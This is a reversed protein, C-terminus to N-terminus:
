GDLFLGAGWFSTCCYLLHAPVTILKNILPMTLIFGDEYNIFGVAWQAFARKERSTCPSQIRNLFMESSFFNLLLILILQVM